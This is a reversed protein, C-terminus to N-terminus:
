KKMKELDTSYCWKGGTLKGFIYKNSASECMVYLRGDVMEIEESMPAIKHDYALSSSDLEYLTTEVGLVTIKSENVRSVDYELIHSFAVGYSTSLYIKENTFYMGQVQDPISYACIPSSAIGFEGQESLEFAVALAQNRDGGKTVLKHSDLTPYGVERYFEGIIIKNEAVTVCSVDVYDSESFNTSFVGKCAVEGGDKTNLIEDRSYVYLCRDDGGAVYVYNGAAAIGGAHGTFASGDENTLRVTKYNEDSNQRNVVYVPSAEGGSSYGTIFFSDSAKDYHIGQPVFDDSIDPIVFEKESASYYSAVSLKLYGIAGILALVALAVILGVVILVIRLVSIKNVFTGM